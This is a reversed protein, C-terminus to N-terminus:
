LSFDRNRTSERWLLIPWVALTNLSFYLVPQLAVLVLYIFPLCLTHLFHYLLVNFERRRM